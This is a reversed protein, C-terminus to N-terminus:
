QEDVAAYFDQQAQLRKGLEEQLVQTESAYLEPALQGTNRQENLAQLDEVYKQRLALDARM